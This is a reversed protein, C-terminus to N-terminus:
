FYHEEQPLNWCYGKCIQPYVM